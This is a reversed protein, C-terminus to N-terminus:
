SMRVRTEGETLAFAAYVRPGEVLFTGETFARRTGVPRLDADDVQIRRAPTDVAITFRATPYATRIRLTTEGAGGPEVAIHSLDRAMQYHGIESTKMWLTRSGDPDFADLRRKVAQLVQFGVEAGGFYYGPWHSVLICPAEMELVPRLRGGTLDETLFYDPDGADYGTWNGFRDDTCGIISAVARGEPPDVCWLPTEPREDQGARVHLFYFPRPNGFVRLSAEQTARAYAAEQRVAFAGPSTVGAASFGAERLLTLAAALYDTLLDPPPDRWEVQEWAETPQGTALDIVQTHTLMEPTFDFGPAITERLVRRWAEWEGPPADPIGQDIRAVGAPYPVISFKGRIGQEGCWDAWRAAFAAPITRPVSALRAADGEWRDPPDGPHHRAKWAHRQRIWYYTLNLVPCSDDVILSLPTRLLPNCVTVNM